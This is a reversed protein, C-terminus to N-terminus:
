DRVQMLITFRFPTQTKTLKQLLYVSEYSDFHSIKMQQQLARATVVGELSVPCPCLLLSTAYPHTFERATSQALNLPIASTIQVARSCPAPPCTLTWWGVSHCADHVSRQKHAIKKTRVTQLANTPPQAEVLAAIPWPALPPAAAAGLSRAMPLRIPGAGKRDSTAATMMVVSAQDTTRQTNHCLEKINRSTSRVNPERESVPERRWVRGWM